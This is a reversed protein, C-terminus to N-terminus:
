NVRGSAAPEHYYLDLIDTSSYYELVKLAEQNIEKLVYTLVKDVGLKKYTEMWEIIWEASVNGFAMKTGIALKNGTEKLPFYPKVYTVHRDTCSLGRITLGIGVPVTGSAHRKNPCTFHFGRLISEIVHMYQMFMHDKVPRYKVINSKNLPVSYKLCCRIDDQKCLSMNLTGYVKFIDWAVNDSTNGGAAGLIYLDGFKMKTYSSTLVPSEKGSVNSQQAQYHRTSNVQTKSNSSLGFLLASIEITDSFSFKCNEPYFPYLSLKPSSLPCKGYKEM